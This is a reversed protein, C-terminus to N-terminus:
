GKCTNNGLGRVPLSYGRIIQQGEGCFLNETKVKIRYMGDYYHM